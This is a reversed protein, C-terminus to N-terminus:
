DFIRLNTYGIEEYSINFYLQYNNNPNWQYPNTVFSIHSDYIAFMIDEIKVKNSSDKPLSNEKVAKDIAERILALYDYDEVFLDKLGIKKGTESYVNSTQEWLGKDAYGIYLHSNLNVFPGISHAYLSLEVVAVPSEKSLLEVRKEGDARIKEIIDLLNQPLNKPYGMSEYWDIGDKSFSGSERINSIQYDRLFRKGVIENTFISKNEDYFRETIAIHGEPSYFSILVPTYLFGVDFEPNNYDIIINIGDNTLFFKQGHSIGKFPAVLTLGSYPDYAMDSTLNRRRVEDMINDNVIKLGNVDNTFVDEISLTKGTNLDFNLAETVSFHTNNYSASVYAVASLVNNCNFQPEVSIRSNIAKKYEHIGTEIGRYPPLKEGIVYPVLQEFLSKIAENISDEVAKDKL